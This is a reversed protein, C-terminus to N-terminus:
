VFNRSARALTGTTHIQGHSALVAASLLALLMAPVILIVASFLGARKSSENKKNYLFIKVFHSKQDFIENALYMTTFRNRTYMCVAFPIAECNLFSKKFDSPGYDWLGYFGADPSEAAEQQNIDALPDNEMGSQDVIM